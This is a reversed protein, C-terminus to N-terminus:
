RKRLLSEDPFKIGHKKAASRTLFVRMWWSVAVLSGSKQSVHLNEIADEGADLDDQTFVDRIGRAAFLSISREAGTDEDILLVGVIYASVNKSQAAKQRHYNIESLDPNVEFVKSQRKAPFAKVSFSVDKRPKHSKIRKIKKQAVSRRKVVRRRGLEVERQTPTAKRLSSRGRAPLALPEVSKISPSYHQKYQRRSIEVGTLLNRYRRNTRTGVRVWDAADYRWWPFSEDGAM